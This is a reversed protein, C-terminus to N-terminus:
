RETTRLASQLRVIGEASPVAIRAVGHMAFSACDRVVVGAPALRDRLGPEDVLVWNAESPRTRLGHEHLVTVLRDRLDSIAASWKPLDVPALLDGLASTVLSNVSWNPQRRRLRDVLAPDALVYGARLGPCALLKTLSGVVVAEPDGRTWHGTALPFFSEDWVGATEDPQALMGSPSHPNSRWRPGHRPPEDDRFRQQHGSRYGRPILSFEPETTWGGLETAVLAIAEAGGNTLLLRDNEVGMAEALASTARTADPYRGMADLHAALVLAPDPAVPNISQSLGLVEGPSVGLAAAVAPGDGGHEGPPPIHGTM